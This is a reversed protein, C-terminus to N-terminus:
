YNIRQALQTLNSSSSKITGSFLVDLVNDVGPLKNDRDHQEAVRNLRQAQLILNLTHGAASEAASIPDFTLGTRGQFSERTRSEGYAKPPILRVISEPIRLYDVSITKLLANLASSQTNADVNQVGKASDYDGKLEYQYNVGGILKVM